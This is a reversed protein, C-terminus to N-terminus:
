RKEGVGLAIRGFQTRLQEGSPSRTVLFYDPLPATRSPRLPMGTRSTIYGSSAGALQWTLMEWAKLPSAFANSLIASQVDRQQGPNLDSLTLNGGRQLTQVQSLNLSSALQQLLDNWSSEDRDYEVSSLASVADEAMQRMESLHSQPRTLPNRFQKTLLIVGAANERWNYDYVATIADLAAQASGQFAIDQRSEIPEGDALIPRGTAKHLAEVADQFTAGRVSITVWFALDGRGPSSQAAAGCSVLCCMLGFLLDGLGLCMRRRQVSNAM